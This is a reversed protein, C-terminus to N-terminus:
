ARPPSAENGKRLLRQWMEGSMKRQRRPARAGAPLVAGFQPHHARHHLRVGHARRLVGCLCLRSLLGPRHLWGYASMLPWRNTVILAFRSWWGTRPVKTQGLWPLSCRSVRCRSVCYTGPAGSAISLHLSAVGFVSSQEQMGHETPAIQAATHAACTQMGSTYVTPLQSAAPKCFRAHLPSFIRFVRSRCPTRAYDFLLPPPLM